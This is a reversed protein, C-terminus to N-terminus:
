LGGKDVDGLPVSTMSEKPVMLKPPLIVISRKVKAREENCDMKDGIGKNMEM